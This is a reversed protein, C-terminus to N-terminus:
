KKPLAKALEKWTVLVFGQDKLFQRFEPSKVMNFDQQRWAAGWDPHDYTAGRMEDDDYALHVILQYVGPKLAALHEKYWNLWDSASVGPEMSVVSQVLVEDAPLDVGAPLGHTGTRELLIPLGFEHGMKAYVKFLDPSQVLAAMHTDLHTLHVGMAQARQIQTRLETEVDNMNANKVVAPTELPMYGQEDYLSPVKSRGNVAGWRFDTWESNLAQHIGLDWDPHQKAIRAAEPFWPCPVLISASTIWGNQLAETTARNVSHSMGYDDAHIILLRATAPYGLKEQVTQTQAVAFGAVLVTIAFLFGRALERICM